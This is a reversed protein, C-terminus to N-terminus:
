LAEMWQLEQRSAAVTSSLFVQNEELLSGLPTTSDDLHLLTKRCTVANLRQLALVMVPESVRVHHLEDQSVVPRTGSSSSASATSIPTAVSVTGSRVRLSAGAPHEPESEDLGLWSVFSKLSMGRNAISHYRTATRQNLACVRLGVINYGAQTAQDLVALYTASRGGPPLRWLLQPHLVVVLTELLTSLAPVSLVQASSTQPPIISTGLSEISSQLWLQEFSAAEFSDSVHLANTAPGLGYTARLSYSQTSKGVKPDSPGALTLLHHISNPRSVVLLACPGNTCADIHEFRSATTPYSGPSSKMLVEVQDKGLTALTALVIQMGARRISHLIALLHCLAHPKVMLFAPIIETPLALLSAVSDICPLQPSICKPFELERDFFLTSLLRRTLVPLSTVTLTDSQLKQWSSPVLGYQKGHSLVTREVSSACNRGLFVASFLGHGTLRDLSSRWHRDGVNHPTVEKAQYLELQSILKFSVLSVFTDGDCIDQVLQWAKSFSITSSITLLALSPVTEDYWANPALATKTIRKESSTRSPTIGVTSPIADLAQVTSTLEDANYMIPLVSVSVAPDSTLLDQAVDLLGLGDVLSILFSFCSPKPAPQKWTDSLRTLVSLIRTPWKTLGCAQVTAGIESLRSACTTAISPLKTAICILLQYTQPMRLLHLTKRAHQSESLKHPTSVRPGFWRVCDELANSNHATSAVVRCGLATGHIASISHPHTRSALQADAPGVIDFVRPIANFGFVQLCVLAKINPTASNASRHQGTQLCLPLHKQHVEHVVRLGLVSLQAAILRCLLDFVLSTEGTSAHLPVLITSINDQLEPAKLTEAGDPQSAHPVASARQVTHFFLSPVRSVELAAATETLAHISIASSLAPPSRFVEAGHEGLCECMGNLVHMAGSVSHEAFFEIVDGQCPASCIINLYVPHPSEPRTAQSVPVTSAARPTPSWHMALVKLKQSSALSKDKPLDKEVNQGMTSANTHKVLLATLGALQLVPMDAGDITVNFWHAAATTKEHEGTAQSSIHTPTAEEFSSNLHFATWSTGQIAQVRSRIADEQQMKQLRAQKQAAVAQVQEIEEMTQPAVTIQAADTRVSVPSTAAPEDVQVITAMDTTDTMQEIAHSKSATSNVSHDEATPDMDIHAVHEASHLRSAGKQQTMPDAVPDRRISRSLRRMTPAPRYHGPGFQIPPHSKRKQTPTTNTSTQTVFVVHRKASPVGQSAVADTTNQTDPIFTTHHSLPESSSNMTTTTVASAQESACQASPSVAGVKLVRVATAPQTSRSCQSKSQSAMLSSIGQKRATRSRAFIDDDDSSEGDDSDNCEKAKTAHQGERLRTNVGFTRTTISPQRQTRPREKPPGPTAVRPSSSGPHSQHSHTSPARPSATSASSSQPVALGFRSQVAALSPFVHQPTSIAQKDDGVTTTAPLISTQTPEQEGQEQLLQVDLTALQPFYSALVQDLSPDTNRATRQPSTTNQQTGRLFQSLDSDTTITVASSRKQLKPPSMPAHLKPVDVTLTSQTGTSLPTHKDALLSTNPTGRSASSTAQLSTPPVVPKIDVDRHNSDVQVTTSKQTDHRGRDTLQSSTSGDDSDDLEVKWTTTRTFLVVEEADTSEDESDSLSPVSLSLHAM